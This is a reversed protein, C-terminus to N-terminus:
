GKMFLKEIRDIEKKLIETIEKSNKAYDMATMGFKDAQEIEGGAKVLEKVIEKEGIMCALHLPTCKNGYEEANVNAGSKILERVIELRKETVALHLATYGEVDKANVNAGKKVLLRVTKADVAYHLERKTEKKKFSSELLSKEKKGLKIM